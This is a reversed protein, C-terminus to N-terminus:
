MAWCMFITRNRFISRSEFRDIRGHIDSMVYIM